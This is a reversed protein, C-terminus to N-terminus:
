QPDSWHILTLKPIKREWEKIRVSYEADILKLLCEFLVTCRCCDSIEFLKILHDACESLKCFKTNIGLIIELIHALFIQSAYKSFRTASYKNPVLDTMQKYENYMKEKNIFDSVPPPKCGVLQLMKSTVNTSIDGCLGTRPHDKIFENLRKKIVDIFALIEEKKEKPARKTVMLKVNAYDEDLFHANACNNSLMGGLGSFIMCTGLVSPLVTQKIKKFDM